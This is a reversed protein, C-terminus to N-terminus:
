GLRFMREQQLAILRRGIAFVGRLAGPGTATWRV